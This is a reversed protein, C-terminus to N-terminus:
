VCKVVKKDTLRNGSVCSWMYHAIVIAIYGRHGEIVEDPFHLYIVIGIEDVEYTGVCAHM